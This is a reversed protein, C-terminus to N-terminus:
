FLFSRARLRDSSLVFVALGSSGEIEGYTTLVGAASCGAINDTRATRSLTELLAQKQGAHDGTFFIVAADAASVGAEQLAQEAAEEAAAASASRSSQGIGSTLM